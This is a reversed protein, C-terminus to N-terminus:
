PRVDKAAAFPHRAVLNCRGVRLDVADRAALPRRNEVLLVCDPAPCHGIHDAVTEVIVLIHAVDADQARNVFNCLAPM